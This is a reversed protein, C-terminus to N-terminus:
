MFGQLGTGYVEGNDAWVVVYYGFVWNIVGGTYTAIITWQPYLVFSDDRIGNRDTDYHFTAGVMEITRNNLQAYELIYPMAISIAQEETITVEVDAFEYLGLMDTFSTVIGTNSLIAQVSRCNINVDETPRWDLSVYRWPLGTRCTINLALDENTVTTNQAEAIDTPVVASLGSCHSANFYTRYNEIARKSASLTEACTLEPRELTGSSVSLSYFRVKGEIFVLAVRLSSHSNSITASISDQQKQSGVVQSKYNTVSTVSYDTLNIGAVEQLFIAFLEEPPLEQWETEPDPTGNQNNDNNNVIPSETPQPTITSEPQPNPSETNAPLPTPSSSPESESDKPNDAAANFLGSIVLSLSICAVLAITIVSYILWRKKATAFM